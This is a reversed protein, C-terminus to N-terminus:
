FLSTSTWQLIGGGARRPRGQFPLSPAAYALVRDTHRREVALLGRQVEAFLERTM